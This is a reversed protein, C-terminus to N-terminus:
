SSSWRSPPRGAVFAFAEAVLGEWEASREFPHVAWQKMPRGRGTDLRTTTGAAVLEDVRARPLKVVLQDRMLMAFIKKGVRLGTTSGFGTGQDVNPDDLYRAAIDEFRRDADEQEDM